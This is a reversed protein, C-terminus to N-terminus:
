AHFAHPLVADSLDTMTTLSHELAEHLVSLVEMSLTGLMKGIDVLAHWVELFVAVLLRVVLMEDSSSLAHSHMMLFKGLLASVCLEELFHVLVHHLASIVQRHAERLDLLETMPLLVLVVVLHSFTKQVVSLLEPGLAALKNISHLSAMVIELVEAFVMLSAARGLTEHVVELLEGCLASGGGENGSDLLELGLHLVGYMTGGVM